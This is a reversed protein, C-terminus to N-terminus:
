VYIAIASTGLPAGAGHEPTQHGLAAHNLRESVRLRVKGLSTLLYEAVDTLM